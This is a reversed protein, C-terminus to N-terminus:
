KNLMGYSNAMERMLLMRIFQSINTASTSASKDKEVEHDIFYINNDEENQKIAYYNGIGDSGIPWYENQEFAEFYLFNQKIDELNNVVELEYMKEKRNLRKSNYYLLENPYNILFEKYFGPINIKLEKEIKSLDVETILQKRDEVIPEWFENNLNHSFTYRVIAGSSDNRSFTNLEGSDLYELNMIEIGADNLGFSLIKAFGKRNRLVLDGIKLSKMEENTLYRKEGLEYNRNKLHSKIDNKTARKVQTTEPNSNNINFTRNGIDFDTQYTTWKDLFSKNLVKGVGYKPHRLFDGIQFEMNNEKIVGLERMGAVGLGVIEEFVCFLGM